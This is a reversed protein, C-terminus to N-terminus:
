TDGNPIISCGAKVVPLAAVATAAVADNWANRADAADQAARADM